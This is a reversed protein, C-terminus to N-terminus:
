QFRDRIVEAKYLNTDLDTLITNLIKMAKGRPHPGSFEVLRGSDVNVVIATFLQERM